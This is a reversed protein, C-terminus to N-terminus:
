VECHLVLVELMKLMVSMDRYFPRPVGGGVRGQQQQQQQAQGVVFSSGRLFHAALFQSLVPRGCTLDPKQTWYSLAAQEVAHHRLSNISGGGSLQSRGIARPGPGGIPSPSPGRHGSM